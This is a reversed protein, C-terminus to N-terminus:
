IVSSFTNDKYHCRYVALSELRRLYPHYVTECYKDRGVCHLFSYPVYEGIINHVKFTTLTLRCCNLNGTPMLPAHDLSKATNKTKM